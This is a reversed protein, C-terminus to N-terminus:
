INMKFKSVYKKLLLSSIEDHVCIFLSLSLFTMRAKDFDFGRKEILYYFRFFCIIDKIMYSWLYHWKQCGVGIESSQYFSITIKMIDKNYKEIIM